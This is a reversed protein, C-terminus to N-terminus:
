PTGPYRPHLGAWLTGSLTSSPGLGVKRKAVRFLDLSLGIQQCGSFHSRLGYFYQRLRRSRTDQLSQASVKALGKLKVQAPLASGELMLVCSRTKLVFPDSAQWPFSKLAKHHSLSAKALWRNKTVGRTLLLCCAVLSNCVYKPM